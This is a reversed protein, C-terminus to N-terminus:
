APQGPLARPGAATASLADRLEIGGAERQGQTFADSLARLRVTRTPADPHLRLLAAELAAEKDLVLAGAAPSEAAFDATREALRETITAVAGRRFDNKWTRAQVWDGYVARARRWGREALRDVEGALFAYLFECVAINHREGVLFMESQFRGAVRRRLARCFNARAVASMLLWRWPAAGGVDLERQVYREDEISGIRALDLNHRQAIATAREAALAAEHPNSSQALALLKRIREIVQEDM